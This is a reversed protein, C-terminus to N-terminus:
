VNSIVTIKPLWKFTRGEGEAADVEDELQTNELSFARNISKIKVGASNVSYTKLNLLDARSVNISFLTDSPILIDRWKNPDRENRISAVIAEKAKIVVAHEEDVNIGTGNDAHNDGVVSTVSMRQWNKSDSFVLNNENVIAIVSVKRTATTTNGSSDSVEYTVFYDRVVDTNVSGSTVISGTLDGEISDIAVAGADIYSGSNLAHSVAADGNLVIVPATTDAVVVTRTATAANGSADTVSYIISYNGPV